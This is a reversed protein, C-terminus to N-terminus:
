QGTGTPAAPLANWDNMPIDRGPYAVNKFPWKTKVWERVAKELVPELKADAGAKTVWYRVSADYGQKGSPNIYVCALETQKDPSLIGYAFATHHKFEWAHRKLEGYDEPKTITMPVTRDARNLLADYDPGLIPPELMNWVYGTLSPPGPAMFDPPVFATTKLAYPLPTTPSAVVLPTSCTVGACVSYAIWRPADGTFRAELHDGVTAFPTETTKGNLSTKLLLSPPASAVGKVRFTTPRGPFWVELDEVLLDTTGNKDLDVPQAKTTWSPPVLDLVKSTQIRWVNNWRGNSLFISGHLVRMGDGGSGVFQHTVKETHVDIRTLPVDHITVWVAGEAATIDGGTGPLGVDITAVVTQTAPDIKTVTGTGQNLTWVYGEGASMFRPGKDVPIQAIVANSAPHIVSIVSTETSSVWVRGYGFVATYSGAPLAITALIDNTVADIRVVSAGGQSPMWISNAGYAIGGENNAPAVPVKAVVQNTTTDIRYIAGDDCSPAWLTGAAVVLGSCPNKVPVMAVTQNTDPDMRVVLNQRRNNTWVQNEGMALWDPGGPMAYEADPVIMSMPYQVAPVGPKPVAPAAPPAQQAGLPALAGVVIAFPIVRKM